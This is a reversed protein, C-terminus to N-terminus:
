GLRFVLEGVLVRAIRGESLNVNDVRCTTKNIQVESRLKWSNKGM